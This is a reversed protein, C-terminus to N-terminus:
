LRLVPTQPRPNPNLQPKPQPDARKEEGLLLYSGPLKSSVLPLWCGILGSWGIINVFLYSVSTSCRFTRNLNHPAVGHEQFKFEAYNSACTMESPFGM